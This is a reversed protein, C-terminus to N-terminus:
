FPHGSLESNQGAANLLSGENKWLPLNPKKTRFRHILKATAFERSLWLKDGFGKM